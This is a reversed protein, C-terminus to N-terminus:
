TRVVAVVTWLLSNFDVTTARERKSTCYTGATIYRSNAAQWHCIPIYGDLGAPTWRTDPCSQYRGDEGTERNCLQHNKNVAPRAITCAGRSYISTRPHRKKTKTSLSTHPHQTRVVYLLM